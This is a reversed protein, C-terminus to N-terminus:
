CTTPTCMGGAASSGRPSFPCASSTHVPKDPERDLDVFLAPLERLNETKGSTSDVRTAIGLGVDQGARVQTTIFRGLAAWDGPEAWTRQGSPLARVEVVGGTCTSFLRDLFARTSMAAVRRATGAALPHRLAFM